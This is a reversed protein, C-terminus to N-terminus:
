SIISLGLNLGKTFMATLGTERRAVVMDSSLRTVIYHDVGSM